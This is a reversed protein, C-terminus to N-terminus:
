RIAGVRVVTRPQEEPTQTYLKCLPQSFEVVQDDDPLLGALVMGDEVLKLLNSLDPKGTPRAGAFQPKLVHDNRGTGWHGKPRKCHFTAAITLPVGVTFPVVGGDLLEKAVRIVRGTAEEQRSPIFRNGTKQNTRKPAWPVPPGPIELWLEPNSVDRTDAVRTGFFPDGISM